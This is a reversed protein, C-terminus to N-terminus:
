SGFKNLASKYWEGLIGALKANSLGVTITGFRSKNKYNGDRRPRVTAQYFQSKPLGTVQCWYMQAEGLATDDFINIWAFIKKEKVGCIERLFRLFARIVRPDTNSLSVRHQSKRGEGIYLGIGLQFLEREEDSGRDKIKFPDGRPNHKLYGAEGRQRRPIGHRDMWYVVKNVSCGLKEAIEAMSLRERLYLHELRKKDIAQGRQFLVM